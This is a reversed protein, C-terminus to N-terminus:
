FSISDGMAPIHVKASRNANSLNERLLKAFEEKGSKEGHVLYIKNYPMTTYRDLLESRCAHSSFSTLQMVNARSRVREGDIMVWKKCHQIQYAVSNEDGAYGCLCVRANENPLVSKLWSVVRGAKLFNSTTIVVQSTQLKQWQQSEEYTGVWVINKWSIVKKWLDNDKEILKDWINTIKWGLPADIIVPTTFTEDEGYIKYLTTLIDQLRNLSFSGFIVKQTDHQCCQDVVCKIKEIDKLRDKQKHTKHSGGYTCEGLVIDCYPMPEYPLLYEKDIDSGIDGTFGLVKTTEGIKFSLRVQAANVIHSAHYYHLTLDDFLVIDEGFPLEVLHELAIEIDEQTYLPTASMDYRKELKVCDSEFIKLSDEWMIRALLKNGKPIYVNGRYGRAFLFPIIGCHDIHFHSLIVADLEQFPVKYNRHNVKYQKLIDDGSTQYLGADLLIQKDNYTIYYMSGTVGDGSKGVFEVKVKEKSKAM